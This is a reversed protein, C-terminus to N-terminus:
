FLLYHLFELIMMVYKGDVVQLQEFILFGSILLPDQIDIDIAFDRDRDRDIDIDVKRDRQSDIQKDVQRDIYTNVCVYLNGPLKLVCM